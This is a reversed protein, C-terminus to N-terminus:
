RSVEVFADPHERCAALYDRVAKVFGIYDGFGNEPELDAYSTPDSELRELGDQLHPILHQARTADLTGPRWMVDYLGARKAMPVLNHTVYGSFMTVLGPVKLSVDLGM